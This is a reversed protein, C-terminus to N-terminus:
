NVHHANKFNDNPELFIQRQPYDFYVNFYRLFDYGIDGDEDLGEFASVNKDEYANFDEFSVGGFVLAKLQTAKVDPDQFIVANLVKGAGQDKVADPHAMWFEPFIQTAPSTTDLLFYDGISDGIQASVFPIGDDINTPTPVSDAPPVFQVPDYAKVERHIYDISVVANALFDYGISGVAKAGNAEYENIHGLDVFVNSM